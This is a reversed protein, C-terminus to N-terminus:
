QSSINRRLATAFTDEPGPQIMCCIRLYVQILFGPTSAQQGQSTCEPWGCISFRLCSHENPRLQVLQEAPDARDPKQLAWMPVLYTQKQLVWGGVSAHLVIHFGVM